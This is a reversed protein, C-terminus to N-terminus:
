RQEEAYELQARVADMLAVSLGIMESTDLVKALSIIDDRETQKIVRMELYGTKTDHRVEINRAIDYEHTLQEDTQWIINAKIM